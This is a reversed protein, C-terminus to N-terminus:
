ESVLTYFPFRQMEPTQHALDGYLDNIMQTAASPSVEGSCDDDYLDFAFTAVHNTMLVIITLSFYSINGLDNKGLTCFNWLVTVFEGFNINSEHRSDVATFVRNTFSTDEIGIANIFKGIDITFYQDVPLCSFENHFQSVDKESLNILDFIKKWISLNPSRSYISSNGGM